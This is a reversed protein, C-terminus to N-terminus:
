HAIYRINVSITVFGSASPSFQVFGRAAAIGNSTLNAFVCNHGNATVAASTTGDAVPIGTTWVFMPALNPDGNTPCFYLNGAAGGTSVCQVYVAAAGSLQFVPGTWPTGSVVPVSVAYNPIFLDNAM